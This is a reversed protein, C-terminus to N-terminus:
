EKKQPFGNNEGPRKKELRKREEELLEHKKKQLRLISRQLGEVLENIQGVTFVAGRKFFAVLGLGVSKMFNNAQPHTIIFPDNRRLTRAATKKTKTKSTTKTVAEVPILKLM